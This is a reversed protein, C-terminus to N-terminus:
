TLSWFYLHAVKYEREVRLRGSGKGSWATNPGQYMM